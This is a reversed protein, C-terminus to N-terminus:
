FKLVNSGLNSGLISGSAKLAVGVSQRRPIVDFHFGCFYSRHLVVSLFAKLCHIIM